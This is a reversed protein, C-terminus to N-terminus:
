VTRHPQLLRHVPRQRHAFSRAIQVSNQPQLPFQWFMYCVYYLMKYGLIRSWNNGLITILIKNITLKSNFYTIKNYEGRSVRLLDLFYIGMKFHAVIRFFIAWLCLTRKYFNSLMLNGKWFNIVHGIKCGIELLM